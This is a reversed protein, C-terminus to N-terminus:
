YQWLLLVDEWWRMNAQGHIDQLCPSSAATNPCIYFSGGQQATSVQCPWVLWVGPGLVNHGKLPCLLTLIRINYVLTGAPADGSVALMADCVSFSHYLVSPSERSKTFIIKLVQSVRNNLFPQRFHLLNSSYCVCYCGLHASVHNMLEAHVPAMCHTDLCVAPPHCTDPHPNPWAPRMLWQVLSKNQGLSGWAACLVM